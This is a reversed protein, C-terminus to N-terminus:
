APIGARRLMATYHDASLHARAAALAVAPIDRGPRDVAAHVVTAVRPVSRGSRAAGEKMAPLLVNRRKGAMVTLNESLRGDGATSTSTAAM